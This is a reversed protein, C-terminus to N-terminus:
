GNGDMGSFNFIQFLFLDLQLLFSNWVRTIKQELSLLWLRPSIEINEVQLQIISHKTEDVRVLCVV